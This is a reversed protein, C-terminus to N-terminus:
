EKPEGPGAGAGAEREQVTKKPTKDKHRGQANPHQPTNQQEIDLFMIM